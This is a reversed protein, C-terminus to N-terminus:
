GARKLIKYSILKAFIAMINSSLIRLIHFKLFIYFFNKKEIWNLRFEGERIIYLM